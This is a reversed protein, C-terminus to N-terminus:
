SRSRRRADVVRVLEDLLAPDVAEITDVLAALAPLPEASFTAGLARAMRAREVAPREVCARYVFVRGKRRREVLGKTTLRELVKATTTYVLGAPLGVREHVQRASLRGQRWLASLVAYELNGGPFSGDGDLLGFSARGLLAHIDRERRTRARSIPGEV